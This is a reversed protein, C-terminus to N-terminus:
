RSIVQAEGMTINATRSLSLPISGSEGIGSWNVVWHSTATVAYRGQRTYTHGCTPSSRTGFKDQYPTGAGSCRITTGDGMKWVVHSVKATATVSYGRLSATRSIPGMTNAAPNEAWMWTPLGIVGVRGARPEPVIGIEIAQLNMAAIAQQALVRPDPPPIPAAPPGAAWFAYYRNGGVFPNYCGYIAGTTHGEWIPDSKPHKEAPPGVYCLKANSWYGNKSKCPVKKVYVCQEPKGGGGGGVPSGGGGGGGGGGGPAKVVVICKRLTPVYVQGPGCSVPSSAEAPTASGFIVLGAMVLAVAFSPKVRM